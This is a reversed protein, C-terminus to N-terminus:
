VDADVKGEHGRQREGVMEVSEKMRREREGRGRRMWRERLINSGWGGKSCLKKERERSKCDQREAEEGTFVEWWGEM